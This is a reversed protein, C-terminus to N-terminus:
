NISPLWLDPMVRESDDILLNQSVLANINHEVMNLYEDADTGYDSAMDLMAEFPLDGKLWATVTRQREFDSRLAADLDGLDMDPDDTMDLLFPALSHM